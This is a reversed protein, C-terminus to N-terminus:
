NCNDVIPKDGSASTNLKVFEQETVRLHNKGEEIAKDIEAVKDPKAGFSIFNKKKEVLRNIAIAITRLEKHQKPTFNFYSFDNVM